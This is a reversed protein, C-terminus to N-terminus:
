PRAGRAPPAGEGGAALAARVWLGVAFALALVGWFLWPAHWRELGHPLNMGLISGLATVPFFVAALLNLRHSSRAIRDALAAQEESRKAIVYDLRNKADSAILDAARENDSAEDRLAILDRDGPAAERAEQLARHLNCTGRVLPGVAHLVAFLDSAGRAAELRGELGDLAEGYAAVLAYLASLGGAAPSSRWAGGGDRWFIAARRESGDPSPLEHLVVLVHGDHAMARQRGAERGLRERFRAPV